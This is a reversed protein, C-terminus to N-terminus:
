ARGYVCLCVKSRNAGGLRRELGACSRNESFNLNQVHAILDTIITSTYICISSSCEFSSSTASSSLILWSTLMAASLNVVNGHRANACVANLDYRSSCTESMLDSSCKGSTTLALKRKICRVASLLLSLISELYAICPGHVIQTVYYLVKAM